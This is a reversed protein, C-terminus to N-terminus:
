SEEEEQTLVQVPDESEAQRKAVWVRDLDYFNATPKIYAMQDLGYSDPEIEIIEGIMIGGPFVGGLGATTVKQGVELKVKSEIRRLLLAGKEEDYGEILGTVKEKVENDAEKNEETTLPLVEASIRNKLDTASLLQVTSTFQSTSKVKGILGQATVVAMNPEVGDQEGKDISLYDYWRDPNRGIVASFVPDYKRLDSIAGLETRLKENDLKYEQLDAELQMYEDLRSKLLENEEYTNKLDNVNEFFGSVYSAPTHFISQFVSVTDQIFQEPWTLKRDGKISFGILAVLVIVSVLLLILRKNLFFQPM